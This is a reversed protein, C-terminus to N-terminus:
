VNIWSSYVSKREKNTSMEFIRVRYKGKILKDSEFVLDNGYKTKAICDYDRFLYYAFKNKSNIDKIKVLVKNDNLELTHEIICPQKVNNIEDTTIINKDIENLKTLLFKPYYIKLREHGEYDMLDLNVNVERLHKELDLVHNKYHHDNKSVHIHIKTNTNNSNEIVDYLLNNLYDKSENEINGAMYAALEHHKAEDILFNGLNSQPGGVIINGVHRKLGYYLATYGGKSSGIMVIDKQLIEKEAVIKDIFSNVSDEITFMRNKCLMYSGQVDFDDLIFLKNIRCDKLTEIYNYTPRNMQSMAPFAICLKDSDKYEELIYKINEKSCFVKENIYIKKLVDSKLNKYLIVQTYFKVNMSNCTIGLTYIKEKHEMKPFQWAKISKGQFGNLINMKFPKNSFVKVMGIEENGKLIKVINDDVIRLSLHKAFNWNLEYINEKSSTIYDEVELIKTSKNFKVKRKHNVDEYRDNEGLVESYEDCIKYDLIKVKDFKGDTRPLPSNLVSLTNHARSSYAFKTFPDKYNYGNPGAEVLIDEEDYLLVNLDDTHKHYASHYAATFIVQANNKSWGDRFIAYGSNKYVKDLYQPCLGEKGGSNVFKIEPSKFLKKYVDPMVQIETDAINPLMGDLRMIDVIFAEANKITQEIDGLIDKNEEDLRILRMCKILNQTIMLHYIPAHEKAIGEDTYVYNFYDRLRDIAIRKYQKWNGRQLFISYKLLALDQFMGHNTLTTHFSDRSLIEATEDLKSLLYKLDEEDIYDRLKVVMMLINELRLATTEDHFAMTYKREDFNNENFWRKIIDISKNIYNQNMTNEFMYVTDLLYSFGNIIRLYSRSYKSEDIWIKDDNILEFGKYIESNITNNNILAETIKDSQINNKSQLYSKIKSYAIRKYKRYENEKNQNIIDTLKEIFQIYYKEEYHYPALGWIHNEDALVEEIYIVNANTFKSQFYSYMEELEKNFQKIHLLEENNFEKKNGDNDIYRESCYVKNLIINKESFKKTIIDYFKDCSSKWEEIDFNVHSIKKDKLYGSKKLESSLTVISGNIMVRKLREDILDIILYEGILDTVKSQILKNLDWYVMRKQFNSENNLEKISVNLPKSTISLMGTRAIYIGLKLDKTYNFADRTVCSGLICIEM